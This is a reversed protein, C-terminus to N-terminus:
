ASGCCPCKADLWSVRTRVLLLLRFLPLARRAELRQKLAEWATSFFLDTQLM